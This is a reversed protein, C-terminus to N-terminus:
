RAKGVNANKKIRVSKMERGDEEKECPVESLSSNWCCRTKIVFFVM